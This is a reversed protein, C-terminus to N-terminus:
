GPLAMEDAAPLTPNIKWSDPRVYVHRQYKNGAAGMMRREKDWGLAKMIPALRNQDARTVHANDKKVANNIVEDATVCEFTGSRLWDEIPYHWPDQQLRADQETEFFIKEDENHWWPHLHLTRGTDADLTTQSYLHVAEAWLQDRNIRAWQVDIKLCKVPWYRRNGTYDKLYEDQNTTGIFVCQRPFDQVMRGYSPRYRDRTQTFFSKATTSEAKNFSDLEALEYGWIGQINQYADKDGLPLPNDSFWQGFLVQVVTSKGRGQAGELILVTDMKCGPKMIRAVAGILFKEGALQLYTDSLAVAGLANRLWTHLRPEGDWRLATLYDRVPHVTNEHAAAVLAHLLPNDGVSISHQYALWVMFQSTSADDWEGSEACKMPPVKVKTIRYSFACYQLVGRWREDNALVLHVNKVNGKVGGEKTRDFKRRWDGRGPAAESATYADIPPLDTDHPADTSERSDLQRLKPTNAAELQAFLQHKVDGIGRLRHLDNWDTNSM